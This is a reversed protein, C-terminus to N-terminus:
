PTVWIYDAYDSEVTSGARAPYITRFPAETRRFARDPIGFKRVIHGNGALVVMIDQKLYFAVSEAMVDEWVCQALYFYDFNKGVRGLHKEFVGKLYNRHAENATDVDKPLYNRECENLSEIGGIRIKPPIHFPLNLGVLRIKKAKIFNLIEEYLEYNYRWNAYWHTQKIFEEQELLGSSWKDLVPQYSRDFMEMGVTLNPHQEYLSEIVKLQIQHHAPNTHSEGVYIVRDTGLYNVLEEFLIPKGTKTSIITGARFTKSIDDLILTKPAVACGWLVTMFVVM